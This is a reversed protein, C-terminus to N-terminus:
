ASVLNTQPTISSDFTFFIIQFEKAFERLIRITEQKRQKDFTLLPDDMIIPLKKHEALLKIFALRTVLYIQDITGKSLEITKNDCDIWDEKEESFVELGLDKNLRGQSYRNNTIKPLYKAIETAIIDAAGEATDAISQELGETIVDLVKLNTEVEQFEKTAMELQEELASLQENDTKAYKGVFESEILRKELKSIEENMNAIDNKLKIFDNPSISASDADLDELKTTQLDIERASSTKQEKLTAVKNNAESFELQSQYKELDNILKKNKEVLEKLEGLSYGLYKTLFDQQQEELDTLYTNNQVEQVPKQQKNFIFFVVVDALIGVLLPIISNLITSLVIAVVTIIIIPLIRQVFKNSEKQPNQQKNGQEQKLLKAIASENMQFSTIETALDEFNIDPLQKQSAEADLLLQKVDDIEKLDVRSQEFIKNAEALKKKATNIKENVELTKTNIELKEKLVNLKTKTEITLDEASSVEELEQKSSKIKSSLDSIKDELQKYKGPKASYRATGTLINRKEKAIEVLITNVAVSNGGLAANQLANKFGVESNHIESLSDATIFATNEYIDQSYFPMIAKIEAEVESVGKILKKKKDASVITLSAEKTQWNKILEYSNDDHTFHLELIPLIEHQWSKMARSTKNTKDPQSFLADLLARSFTSKGSENNGFVVHFDQEFNVELKDFQQYNEIKFKTLKM